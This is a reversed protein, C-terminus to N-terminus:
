LPTQTIRGDAAEVVSEDPVAQWDAADDYPESAVVVSDDRRRLFLSNGAATAAIRVGDTLLLNLRGTTVSRVTAVTVALATALDAGRELERVALAFLVGSEIPIDAERPLTDAVLSRLHRGPKGAFDDVYGNHSFLWRGQMFPACCSEDIPSGIAASRVAALV